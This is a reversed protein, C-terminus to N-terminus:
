VQYFQHNLQADMFSLSAEDFNGKYGQLVTKILSTVVGSYSEVKIPQFLINDKLKRKM